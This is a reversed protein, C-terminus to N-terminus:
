EGKVEKEKEELKKGAEAEAEKKAKKAKAEAVKAEKKAKAEAERKERDAVKDEYETIMADVVEMATAEVGDIVNKKMTGAFNLARDVGDIEMIVAFAGDGTVHVDNGDEKLAEVLANVFNRKMMMETRMKDSMGM